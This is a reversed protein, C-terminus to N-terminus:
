TSRDNYTHHAHMYCTQLCVTTTTAGHTLESHTTHLRITICPAVTPAHVVCGPEVAHQGAVLDNTEQLVVAVVQHSMEDNGCLEIVNPKLLLQEEELM